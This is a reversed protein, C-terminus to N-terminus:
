DGAIYTQVFCFFLTLSIVHFRGLEQILRSEFHRQLCDYRDIICYKQSSLPKLDLSLYFYHKDIFHHLESKIVKAIVEHTFHFIGTTTQCIM